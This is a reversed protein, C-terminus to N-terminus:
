KIDVLVYMGGAHYSPKDPNLDDVGISQFLVKVRVADNEDVFTLEEQTYTRGELYREDLKEFFTRVPHRYLERGDQLIVLVDDADLSASIGPSGQERMDPYRDPLFYDYGNVDIADFSNKGLGISHYGLRSSKERPRAFGLVEPLNQNQLDNGIPGADALTHRSIFYDLVAYIERRDEEDVNTGKQIVGQQTMMGNKALLAQLRARQSSVSVGFASLPGLVSLVALVCLLAPALINYRREPALIIAMGTMCAVWFGLVMVLYREETFGYAGIRVFLGAFMLLLPLVTLRPYWRDFIGFWRNERSQSRMFYLALVGVATYWLVMNVMMNSPWDWLLLTRAFFAYIIATYVSLLPFIIYGLLIKMLPQFPEALVEERVEPVGALFFSPAFLGLCLIANDMYAKDGLEVGLLQDLMLLVLSVGGILIGTFIFTVAMRWLLKLAFREDGKGHFLYPVAVALAVAALLLGLYRTSGEWSQFPPAPLLFVFYLIMVAALGAWWAAKFIASRRPKREFYLRLATCLPLGLGLTYAVRSLWERTAGPWESERHLLILSIVTIAAACAVAVPFRSFGRQFSKGARKFFGAPEKM